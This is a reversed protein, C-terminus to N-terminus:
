CVSRILFLSERVSFIEGEAQMYRLSLTFSKYAKFSNGEKM